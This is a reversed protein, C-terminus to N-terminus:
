RARAVVVYEAGPRDPAQRVDLVEFGAAALSTELEDRERFRLTSTSSLVEGDPFTYCHRFSVLPLDVGIVTLQQTVEGIEPVSRVTAATQQAWEDWARYAPRRSELVLHGGTRLAARLGTLAASWQEDTLFVQAVNGTLLALDVELSPLTTADAHLWRVRDAGAKEWAVALSVQAPDVGVVDIGRAALQVALSGTGCGLDLVRHADLEDALAEYAALDDRPADFTDYVRALRPHAFIPDPPRVFRVDALGDPAVVGDGLSWEAVRSVHAAPVAPASGDEPVAYTTHGDRPLLVTLGRAMAGRATAAVCMESQIGVLCPRAVGADGLIAELDTGDFGDDRVKGIVREGEDIRMVLEWGASGRPIRSGPWAGDDQLHIVPVGATRASSLAAAWRDLYADADAIAHEGTVLARQVDVVVLADARLDAAEMGILRGSSALGIGCSCRM